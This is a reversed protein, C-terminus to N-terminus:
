APKNIVIFIRARVYATMEVGFDLDAIDDSNLPPFCMIYSRGVLFPNKMLGRLQERNEITMKHIPHNLEM